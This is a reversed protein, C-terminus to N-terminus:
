HIFLIVINKSSNKIPLLVNNVNDSFNTIINYETKNSNSTKLFIAYNMKNLNQPIYRYKYKNIM